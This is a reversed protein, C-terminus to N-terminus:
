LEGYNKNCSVIFENSIHLNNYFQLHQAILLLAAHFFKAQLSNFHKALKRCNFNLSHQASKLEILKESTVLSSEQFQSNYKYKLFIM